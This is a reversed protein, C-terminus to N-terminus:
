LKNLILKLFHNKKPLFNVWMHHDSLRAGNAAPVRGRRGAAASQLGPDHVCGGPPRRHFQGSNLPFHKILSCVTSKKERRECLERYLVQIKLYKILFTHVRTIPSAKRLGNISALLRISTAFPMKAHSFGNRTKQPIILKIM